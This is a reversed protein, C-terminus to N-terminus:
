HRACRRPPLLYRDRRRLGRYTEFRELSQFWKLARTVQEDLRGAATAVTLPSPIRDKFSAKFETRADEGGAIRELIDLWEM